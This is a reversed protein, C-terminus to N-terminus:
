RVYKAVIIDIEDQSLKDHSEKLEDTDKPLMLKLTDRSQLSFGPSVLYKYAVSEERVDTFMNVYVIAGNLLYLQWVFPKGSYMSRYMNSVVQPFRSYFTSQDFKYVFGNSALLEQTTNNFTLAYAIGLDFQKLDSKTIDHIDVITSNEISVVEIAAGFFYYKFIGTSLIHEERKSKKNGTLFTVYCRILSNYDNFPEMPEIVAIYNTTM